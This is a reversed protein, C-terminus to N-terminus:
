GILYRFLRVSSVLEFMRLSSITYLNVFAVPLARRRTASARSRGSKPHSLPRTSSVGGMGCGGELVQELAAQVHGRYSFAIIASAGVAPSSLLHFGLGTILISPPLSPFPHDRHFHFDFESDHLYSM